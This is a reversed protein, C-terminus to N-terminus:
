RHFYQAEIYVAKNTGLTLPLTWSAEDEMAVKVAEM